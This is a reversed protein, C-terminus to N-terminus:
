FFFQEWEELKRRLLDQELYNLNYKESISDSCM